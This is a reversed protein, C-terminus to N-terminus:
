IFSASGAASVRGPSCPKCDTEQDHEQDSAKSDHPLYKGAGCELCGTSGVQATYLGVSCVECDHHLAADTGDDANFRGAPCPLCQVSPSSEPRDPPSYRGAPCVVWSSLDPSGIADSYMGAPGPECSPDEHLAASTGRGPNWRGAPCDVCTDADDLTKQSGINFKGAPCVACRPQGEFLGWGKSEDEHLTEGPDCTLLCGQTPCGECDPSYGIPCTAGGSEFDVLFMGDICPAPALCTIGNSYDYIDNGQM